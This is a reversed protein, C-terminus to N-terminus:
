KLLMMKKTLVYNNDAVLRYFYVGSSNNSANWNVEYLKTRHLVAFNFIFLLGVKLKNQENNNNNL